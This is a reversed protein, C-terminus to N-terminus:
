VLILINSLNIDQDNERHYVHNKTYTLFFSRSLTFQKIDNSIVYGNIPITMEM